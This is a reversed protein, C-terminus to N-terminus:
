IMIQEVMPVLAADDGLRYLAGTNADRKENMSGVWFRGKPDARGDNFRHDRTDYPADAIKRELRGTCNALWVGNRLAVIFGGQSRFAFCGISEPMPWAANAGTAPDFRNLSPANIDVWYLVQEDASWVPCEGLSAKIDLVCDFPYTMTPAPRSRFACRVLFRRERRSCARARTWSVPRQGTSRM